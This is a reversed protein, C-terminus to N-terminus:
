KRPGKGACEMACKKHSPGHAGMSMYCYSDELNGTVTSTGGAAFAGGALGISAIIGLGAIAFHKM